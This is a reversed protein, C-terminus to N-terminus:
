KSRRLEYENLIGSLVRWLAHIYCINRAMVRCGNNQQDWGEPEYDPSMRFM